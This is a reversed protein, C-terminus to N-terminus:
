FFMTHLRWWQGGQIDDTLGGCRLLYLPIEANGIIGRVKHVVQLTEEYFNINSNKKIHLYM